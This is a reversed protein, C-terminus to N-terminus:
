RRMQRRRQQRQPKRGGNRTRRLNTRTLRTKTSSRSSPRKRSSQRKRGGELRAAADTNLEFWLKGAFFVPNKVAGKLILATKAIVGWESLHENMFKKAEEIQPSTNTVDVNEVKSPDKVLQELEQQVDLPIVQPLSPLSPPAPSEAIDTGENADASAALALAPPSSALPSPSLPPDTAPSPSSPSSASLSTNKKEFKQRLKIMDVRKKVEALEAAAKEHMQDLIEASTGGSKRQKTKRM